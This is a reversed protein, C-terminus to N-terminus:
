DLKARVRARDRRPTERRLHALVEDPDFRVKAGVRYYPIREDQVQHYLWSVSVCLRDAMARADVLNVGLAKGLRQDFGDDGM